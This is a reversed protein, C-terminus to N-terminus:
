AARTMLEIAGAEGDVSTAGVTIPVPAGAPLVTVMRSPVVATPVPFAAPFPFKRMVVLARAMPLWVRVALAGPAALEAGSM